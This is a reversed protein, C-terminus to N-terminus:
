NRLNPNFYGYWCSLHIHDTVVFVVEILFSGVIASSKAPAL